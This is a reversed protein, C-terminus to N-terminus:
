ELHRSVEQTVQVIPETTFHVNDQVLAELYGPGPTLRRCGPLFDSQLGALIEPKGALKQQMNAKIRATSSIQDPTGPFLCPYDANISAEIEKRYKWYYEPDDRFQALEKLTYKHNGSDPETAIAAMTTSGGFPQSIYTGTRAFNYVNKALRQLHPLMQIASSGAGIRAVNKNSWDRIASLGKILQVIEHIKGAAIGIPVICCTDKSTM